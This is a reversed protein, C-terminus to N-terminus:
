YSESMGLCKSYPLRLPRLSKKDNELFFLKSLLPANREEKRKRTHHKIKQM